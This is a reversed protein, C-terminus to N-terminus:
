DDHSDRPTIPTSSSDDISDEEPFEEEAETIEEEITEEETTEEETTEEIANEIQAAEDEENRKEQQALEDEVRTNELDLKLNADSLERIEALTPLQDLSKLNFYDLFKHTTAYIAPRGPVERHGVVRVWERELLTKMISSSVAVGRVQEIEGRTIPQQYAILALTELLARSYKQPKEEWLRSIWPSLEQRIQFRYGSAVEVLAFGRDSCEQEIQALADNIDARPPREDIHFLQQIREVSIPQGAALLVGEIIRKLQDIDM